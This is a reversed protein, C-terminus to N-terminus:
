LPAAIASLYRENIIKQHHLVHGVIIFAIANPTVPHNSATGFRFLGEDTMHRYLIISTQRVLLLEEALDDLSRNEATANDAFLNEDFGPLPQTEGRSISMARYAFVRETDTMHQLLQKITWKGPAYAYDAKEAPITDLFQKLPDLSQELIQRADAGVPYDIYRQFFTGYEEIKPRPM